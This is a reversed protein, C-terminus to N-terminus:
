ALLFHWIDSIVSDPSCASNCAVVPNDDRVHIVPTAEERLAEATVTQVPANEAPSGDQLTEVVTASPAQPVIASKTVAQRPDVNQQEPIAELPAMEKPYTLEAMMPADDALTAHQPHWLVAVGVAVLLLFSAVTSYRVMRRRHLVHAQAEANEWVEGRHTLRDLEQLEEPTIIGEAQRRLLSELHTM